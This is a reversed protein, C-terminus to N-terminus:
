FNPPINKNGPNAKKYSIRSTSKKKLKKVKCNRWKYLTFICMYFTVYILYPLGYPLSYIHYDKSLRYTFRYPIGMPKCCRKENIMREDVFIYKTIFYFIM